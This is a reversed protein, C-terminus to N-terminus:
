EYFYVTESLIKNRQYQFAWPVRHLTVNNYYGMMQKGNILLILLLVFVTLVSSFDLRGEFIRKGFFLCNMVSKMIRYFSLLMLLIFKLNFNMGLMRNNSKYLFKLIANMTKDHYLLTYFNKKKRQHFLFKVLRM